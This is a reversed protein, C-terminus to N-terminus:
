FWAPVQQVRPHGGIKSVCGDVMAVTPPPARPFRSPRLILDSTIDEKTYDPVMIKGMIGRYKELREVHEIPSHSSDAKAKWVQNTASDPCYRVVTRPSDQESAKVYARRPLRLPSETPTHTKPKYDTNCRDAKLLGQQGAVLRGTKERSGM